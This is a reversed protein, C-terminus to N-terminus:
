NFGMCWDTFNICRFKVIYIGEILYFISSNPNVKARQEAAGGTVHHRWRLRKGDHVAKCGLFSLFTRFKVNKLHNISNFHFWIKM